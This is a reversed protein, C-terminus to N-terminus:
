FVIYHATMIGGGHQPPLTSIYHLYWLATSFQKARSTVGVRVCLAASYVRWGQQKIERNAATGYISLGTRTDKPGFLQVASELTTSYTIHCLVSRLIWCHQVPKREPAVPNLLKASSSATADAFPRGVYWDTLMLLLTCTDIQSAIIIFFLPFCFFISIIHHGRPFLLFNFFYYSPVRMWQLSKGMSSLRAIDQRSAPPGENM